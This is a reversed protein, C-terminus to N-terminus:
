AAWDELTWAMQWFAYEYRTCTIYAEKMAEIEASGATSAVRDCIARTEEAVAQNEPGSYMRIWEAYRPANAPEGQAALREGVQWYGWICPVLAAITEGFSGQHAVRLLYSTYSYTTPAPRTAELEAASIGFEACFSRHLDMETNLTYEVATALWGMTELDPAKATAVAICRSFDILYVYDQTIFHKFRDTPLTGDGIGQVFPHNMMAERQPKSAAEIEDCFSM